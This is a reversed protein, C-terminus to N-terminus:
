EEDTKAKKEKPKRKKVKVKDKGAAVMITLEDRRYVKRKREKMLALLADRTSVEARTLKMRKDRAEVYADAAEELESDVEEEMGPLAKTAM